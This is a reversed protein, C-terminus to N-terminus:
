RILILSEIERLGEIDGGSRDLSTDILVYKFLSGTTKTKGIYLYLFFM